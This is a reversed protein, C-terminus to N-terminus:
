VISQHKSTCGGPSVMMHSSVAAPNLEMATFGVYFSRGHVDSSSFAKAERMRMRRADNEESMVILLM